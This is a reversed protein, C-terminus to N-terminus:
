DDTVNEPWWPMQEGLGPQFTGRVKEMLFSSGPDGPEILVRGYAGTVGIAGAEPDFPNMLDPRQPGGTYHCIACKGSRRGLTLGDGFILSVEDRYRDDDPAGDAIWTELTALEEDTLRPLIWPMRSGEHDILDTGIVKEVLFSREPHGPEIILPSSPSEWTSMRNLAGIEPDFINTLDVKSPNDPHHCSNCKADLIPKVDASYSVPQASAGSNADGLAADGSAADAAADVVSADMASRGASGSAGGSGASAAADVVAGADGRGATGADADPPASPGDGDSDGCAFLLCALLARRFRPKRRGRM